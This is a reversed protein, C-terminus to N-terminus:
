KIAELKSARLHYLKREQLFKQIFSSSELKENLFDEAITESNIDADQCLTKLKRLATGRSL